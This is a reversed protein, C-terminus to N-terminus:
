DMLFKFSGMMEITATDIYALDPNNPISCSLIYVNDNYETFIDRVFLMMDAEQNYWCSRRMFANTENSIDKEEMVEYHPELAQQLKIKQAADLYNKGNKPVVTIYFGIRLKGVKPGIFATRQEDILKVNWNELVSVTYGSRNYQVTKLETNKEITTM